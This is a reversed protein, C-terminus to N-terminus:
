LHGRLDVDRRGLHKPLITTPVKKSLNQRWFDRSLRVVRARM